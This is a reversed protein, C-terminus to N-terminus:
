FKKPDWLPDTKPASKAGKAGGKAGFAKGVARSMIFSTATVFEKTIEAQTKKACANSLDAINLKKGEINYSNEMVGIMKGCLENVKIVTFEIDRTAFEKM